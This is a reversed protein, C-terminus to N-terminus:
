QEHGSAQFSNLLLQYICIFWVIWYPLAKLAYKRVIQSNFYSPVLDTTSITGLFFCFLIFYLMKKDKYNESTLWWIGLGIAGIIHTSTETSSSYLIVFLLLTALYKMQFITNNWLKYRILPIIQLIFAPLIIWLVNFSNNQLVKMVIGIASMNQNQNNLDINAGNKLSLERFWSLYTANIFDINTILLPLFYFLCTSAILGIIFKFKNKVFFFLGLAVIGYIKVFFGLMILLAAKYEKANIISIYVGVIVFGIFTNTQVNQCNAIAEAILFLLLINQKVLDLPLKRIVFHLCYLQVLQYLVIALQDPMYSFPAIILSFLIGYHNKDIYSNQYYEYLDKCELTHYYVYKYITYNNYGNDYLTQIITAVLPLAYWLLNVKWESHLLRSFWKKM